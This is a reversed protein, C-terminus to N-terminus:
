DLMDILDQKIEGYDVESLMLRGLVADKIGDWRVDDSLRRAQHSIHEAMVLVAILEGEPRDTDLLIQMNHHELIASCINKPLKWTRSVIYGVTAHNTDYHREEVVTFDTLPENNAEQLVDFYNSYKQQLLPIGCDHFLGFMYAHDKSEANVLTALKACILATDTATDWFRGLNPGGGKEMSARLSLGTVINVVNSMGLLMTAQQISSIEARMGFFPSNITKIVAASLSVDKSVIDAITALNANGANILKMVETLTAPQPPIDISNVIKQAQTVNIESM